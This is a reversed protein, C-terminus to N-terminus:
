SGTIVYLSIKKSEYERLIYTHTENVTNSSVFWPRRMGRVLVSTTVLDYELLSSGHIFESILIGKESAAIRSVNNSDPTYTIGSDTKDLTTKIIRNGAVAAYLYGKRVAASSM